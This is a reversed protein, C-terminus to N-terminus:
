EDDDHDYLNDEGRDGDVDHVHIETIEIDNRVEFEDKIDEALQEAYEEVREYDVDTEVVINLTITFEKKM